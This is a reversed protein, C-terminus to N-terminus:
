GVIREFVRLFNEGLVGRVDDPSMGSSLLAETINPWDTWKAFGDIKADQGLRHEARWGVWDFQRAYKAGESSVQGLSNLQKPWDYCRGTDTGIGVNEVGVLEAIHEVHRVFDGLDAQPTQQIFSPVLLVGVFGGTDVVAKIQDDKKARDHACVAYSSTHTFTVPQKSVKIADWTTREGCHSLDIMINFENLVKVVERGFYSLGADDADTCGGGVLNSRNYTLQVVRIGLNYFLEINDLNDGFADANQLNMLVGHAGAAHVKRMDEASCIVQLEPSLVDVLGRTSATMEIAESFGCNPSVAGLQTTNSVTVGATDIIQKMQQRVEPYERMENVLLRALAVRADRRSLGRRILQMAEEAMRETLILDCNIRPAQTDIVLAAKHLRASEM